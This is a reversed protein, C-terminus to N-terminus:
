VCVLRPKAIAEYRVDVPTIWRGSSNGDIGTAVRKGRGENQAEGGQQGAAGGAESWCDFFYDQTGLDGRADQMALGEAALL